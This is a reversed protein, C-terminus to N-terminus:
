GGHDEVFPLVEEEEEEVEGHVNTEDDHVPEEGSSDVVPNLVGRHGGLFGLGDLGDLGLLRDSILIDNGVVVVLLESLSRKMRLIFNWKFKCHCKESEISAVRSYIVVIYETRSSAGDM